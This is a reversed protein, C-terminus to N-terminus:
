VIAFYNLSPWDSNTNDCFMVCHHFRSEPLELMYFPFQVFALIVACARKLQTCILACVVQARYILNPQQPKPELHTHRLWLLILVRTTENSKETLSFSNGHNGQILRQSTFRDLNKLVPRSKIYTRRCSQFM